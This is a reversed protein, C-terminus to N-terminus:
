APVLIKRSVAASIYGRIYAAKKEPTTFLKSKAPVWKSAIVAQVIEDRSLARKRTTEVIQDMVTGAKVSDAKGPAYREVTKETPKVVAKKVVATRRPAVKKAPAKKRTVTKKTTIKTANM